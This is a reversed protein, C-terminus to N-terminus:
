AYKKHILQVVTGSLYLIPELNTSFQLRYYHIVGETSGEVNPKNARQIGGQCGRGCEDCRVGTATPL